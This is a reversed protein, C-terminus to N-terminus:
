LLYSHGLHLDPTEDKVMWLDGGAKFVSKVDDGFVKSVIEAGNEQFGLPMMQNEIIKQKEKYLHKRVDSSALEKFFDQTAAWSFIVLCMALDDNYGSEGQYTKNHRVFRTLEELIKYDEILLRDSEVLTKLNSCGVKKTATSMKVGYTAKSSFYGGLVQGARGRMKCMLVQEYELDLYLIEAVQQGIDNIEILVHANNYKKAVRHIIAPFMIPKIKNNKYRCVAKYPISSIDFVIFASYDQGSGRAVDVTILYNHEKQPAEFRALGDEEAEPSRTSISALKDSQILTDSSGLFNCEFEQKWQELSTNKITEEKFKEDRGPVDWWNIEFTKFENVKQKADNWLKYFLNYGKPTSTIIVKTDKGSSITPYTSTFFEQAIHEPVFAFEDLLITNFTLGRVASSSTSAAIVSSGNELEISGKNWSVIGHQIWKPLKEYALQIRAIIEKSMSLKNALIGITFNNNFIMQHLIYGTAVSTNHTPIFTRGCLFLHSPDDVQICQVPVSDTPEIHQIYIRKDCDRTNRTQNDFNRAKRPLKAPTFNPTFTITYYNQNDITKCKIERPKVGLSCILERFQFIFDISKQYFQVTRADKRVWGDSDILGKLLELRDQYSARLYSNPIHKNNKLNNKTLLETLGVIRFNVCNENRKDFRFSKIKFIKKYYEFDEKSCTICGQHSDGDGLWLGFTYPDIPLETKNGLLPKTVKIYFPNQHGKGKKNQKKNKYYNFIEETNLIKEEKHKWTSSNVEWMHEADAIITEGNDFFVKYCNHNYMVNTKFTIKTPSGNPSLILDGVKLNELTEWGDPTPIPTKISLAKGVQRSLKCISFRNEHFVNIMEEQFDYLDFAIVGKDLSVIKMYNRIFYVPDDKCKIIERIQQETYEITVNTPKLLKSGKYTNKERKM